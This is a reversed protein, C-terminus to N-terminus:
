ITDDFRGFCRMGRGCALFQYTVKWWMQGQISSFLGDPQQSESTRSQRMLDWKMLKKLLKTGNVKRVLHGTGSRFAVDDVMQWGDTADM